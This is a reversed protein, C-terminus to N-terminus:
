LLFSNSIPAIFPHLQITYAATTTPYFLSHFIPHETEVIYGGNLTVLPYHEPIGIDRLTPLISNLPRASVLTVPIGKAILKRITQKTLDSVSHDSKLLTGDMDLFVAKYM